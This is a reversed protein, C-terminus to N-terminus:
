RFTWDTSALLRAPRSRFSRPVLAVVAAAVVSALCCWGLYRLEAPALVLLPGLYLWASTLLV